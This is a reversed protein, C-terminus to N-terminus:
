SWTRSRQGTPALEYLSSRGSAAERWWGLYDAESMRGWDPPHEVQARGLARGLAVLAAGAACRVSDYEALAAAWGASAACASGLALADAMAKAAGSGTHPRATAGADGALVMRGSVYQSSATDFVPQVSIQDAPTRRVVDAWLPPFYGTVVRDMVDM